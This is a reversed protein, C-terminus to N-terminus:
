KVGGGKVLWQRKNFKRYDKAVRRVINEVKYDVATILKMLPHLYEWSKKMEDYLSENM